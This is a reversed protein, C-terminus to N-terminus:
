IEKYRITYGEPFIWNLEKLNEKVVKWKLWSSHIISKGDVSVIGIHSGKKSIIIAGPKATHVKSGYIIYDKTKLNNFKKEGFLAFNVIHVSRYQDRSKGVLSEAREAIGKLQPFKDFNVDLSLPMTKGKDNSKKENQIVKKTGKKTLDAITEKQKLPKELVEKHVEAKTDAKTAIKGLKPTKVKPLVIKPAVEEKVTVKTNKNQKVLEKTTKTKEQGAVVKTKPKTIKLKATGKNAESVKETAVVKNAKPIETTKKADSKDYIKNAAKEKSAVKITKSTKLAEVTKKVPTDAVNEKATKIKKQGVVEKTKPKTIKLKATGKNAESVKETAVVKNAKPIATTKKADSKDNIKNAVKVKSAVRITKPTIGTKVAEVSKKVPSDAVNVKTIIKKVKLEAANGKAIIKKAKPQIAAENAVAKANKTVTVTAKNSVKKVKPEAAAEKAPSNKSKSGAVQEKLPIKNEKQAKLNKSVKGVKEKAVKLAANVENVVKNKPAVLDVKISSKKPTETPRTKKDATTKDVQDNTLIKKGTKENAVVKESNVKPLTGETVKKTKTVTKITTKTTSTEAKLNQKTDVITAPTKSTEVKSATQTKVSPVEKSVKTTSSSKDPSSVPTSTVKITTAAQSPAKDAPKPTTDKNAPPASKFLSSIRDFFLFEEKENEKEEIRAANCQLLLLGLIIASLLARM